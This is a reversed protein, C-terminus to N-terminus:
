EPEIRHEIREPIIRAELFECGGFRWLVSFHCTVLSMHRINLHIAIESRSRFNLTQGRTSRQIRSTHGISKARERFQM